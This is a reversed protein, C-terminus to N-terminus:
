EKQGMRKAENNKVLYLEDKIAGDDTKKLIGNKYLEDLIDKGVRKFVSRQNNNFEESPFVTEFNKDFAKYVQDSISDSYSYYDIQRNEIRTKEKAIEADTKKISFDFPAYLNDYQWPKGKQFEYKFQGGKPLFFVILFISVLYLFYKYILTQNKYLRDLFKRM